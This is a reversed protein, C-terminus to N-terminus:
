SQWLLNLNLNQNTSRTITALSPHPPLPHLSLPPRSVNFSFYFNQNANITFIDKMESDHVM